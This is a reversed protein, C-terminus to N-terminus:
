GLFAARQHLAIAGATAVNLSDFGPAMMISLTELRELWVDALGHGESGLVLAQRPAPRWNSIDTKGAPSLAAIAFKDRDLAAVGADM